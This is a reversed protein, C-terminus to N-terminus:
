KFTSMSMLQDHLALRKRQYKTKVEERLKERSAEVVRRGDCREVLNSPPGSVGVSKQHSSQHSKKGSFNKNPSKSRAKDMRHYYSALAEQMYQSERLEKPYVNMIQPNLVTTAPRFTCPDPESEKELRCLDIKSQREHEWEKNREYVSKDLHSRSDRSKPKRDGSKIPTFTCEKLDKVEQESEKAQRIVERM